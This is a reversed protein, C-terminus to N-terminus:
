EALVERRVNGLREDVVWGAGFQAPLHGLYANQESVQLAERREGLASRCGLDYRHEVIRESDRHGCHKRLAARHNLEHAISQHRDEVRRNALGIM